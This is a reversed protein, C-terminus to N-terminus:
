KKIKSLGATALDALQGKPQMKLVLEYQSVADPYQRLHVYAIALLYHAQANKSNGAVVKKLLEVSKAYNGTSMNFIAEKMADHTPNAIPAKHEVESDINVGEEGQVGDKVPSHKAGSNKVAAAVAQMMKQNATDPASYLQVLREADGPQLQRAFPVDSSNLGFVGNAMIDDSRPSHQLGLAHGVEHLVVEKLMRDQAEYIARTSSSETPMNNGRCDSNCAILINARKLRGDLGWEPDMLGLASPIKEVWNIVLDAQAPDKNTIEMRVLGRAAANWQEVANTVYDPFHARYGKITGKPPVIAVKLTKKTAVDWKGIEADADIQTSASADKMRSLKSRGVSSYPGPSSAARSFYDRAADYNGTAELCEGAGIMAVQDTPDASLQDEYMRQAAYFNGSQKYSAALRAKYAPKNTKGILEQLTQQAEEYRRLSNYVNYLRELATVGEESSARRYYLIAEDYNGKSVENDGKEILSDDAFGPSAAAFLLLAACLIRAHLFPRKTPKFLHM